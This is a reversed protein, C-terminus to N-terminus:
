DYTGTTVGEGIRVINAPFNNCYSRLDAEEAPGFEFITATQWALWTKKLQAQATALTTTSPNNAFALIDTELQTSETALELYSPLIINNGINALLSLQDFDTACSNDDPAKCAVMGLLLVFLLSTKIRKM